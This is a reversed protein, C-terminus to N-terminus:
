AADRFGKGAMIFEEARAIGRATLRRGRPTRDILGREILFDEIRGIGQKTERLRQMITPEGIVYEVHGEANERPFFQRLATIYAIHKRTMGDPETEIFELLEDPTCPRGLNEALDHAAMVMEETVRPIGRCAGSIAYITENTVDNEADQEWCFKVTIRALEAQTYPQFYPKIKFRDLVPEPLKDPETTAGIVTIDHTTHVTGNPEFIVGDELLKLLVEAGRAGVGDTLKHIEDIFLIGKDPLSMAAQVIAELKFPPVIEIIPVDMVKALLRAMTTKGVGPFGSALLTHPLRADRKLAANVRVLLQQKLPEQGIYDDWDEPLTDTTFDLANIPAVSESSDPEPDDAEVEHDEHQNLRANLDEIAGVLRATQRDQGHRYFGYLLGADLADFDGNDDLM